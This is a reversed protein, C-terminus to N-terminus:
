RGSGQGGQGAAPPAPQKQWYEVMSGYYQNWGAVLVTRSDPNIGWTFGKKESDAIVDMMAQAGQAQAKLYDITEKLEVKMQAVDTKLTDLDGGGNGGLKKKLEAIEVRMKAVEQELTGQTPTQAAVSLMGASLAVAVLGIGLNLKM